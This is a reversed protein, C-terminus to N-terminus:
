SASRLDIARLNKKGRSWSGCALCQFQQFKGLTTYKYGQKIVNASECKPCATEDSEDDVYLAQNPATKLWPFMRMYLDDTLQVDQKCYRAMKARAKPDGALVEKWLSIGGTSLKGDLGLATSVYQLKHSIFRFRKSERFLDVESFPSPPNFHERALEGMVWPTDFGRSNFGAVVDASSFLDHIGQLMGLRGHEWESLLSVRKEGLWKAGICLIRPDELIFEIPTYEDRLSWKYTIAPSCEIDYVLVRASSM